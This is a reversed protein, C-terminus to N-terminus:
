SPGGGEERWLRLEARLARFEAKIVQRIEELAFVFAEHPPMSETESAAPSGGTKLASESGAEPSMDRKEESGRIIDGGKDGKEEASRDRNLGIQEKLDKFRKVQGLLLERKEAESMGNTQLSKELNEFVSNLLLISDPHARAKNNKIYKGVSALLQFFLQISRDAKYADKLLETQRLLGTMTEDSIEWDVSLIVSKLDRLPNEDAEGVDVPGSPAEGEEFLDSLRSDVEENFGSKKKQVM